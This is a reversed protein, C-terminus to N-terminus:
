EPVDLELIMQRIDNFGHVKNEEDDYHGPEPENQRVVVLDKEPWVILHQGLWGNAAFAHLATRKTDIPSMGSSLRAFHKQESDTLLTGVRMWYESTSSFSLENLPALKIAADFGMKQYMPILKANQKVIVRDEPVWWLLGYWSLDRAAASTSQKVSESTLLQVGAWRGGNKMLTGIKALDEALMSLGANTTAHGSKDHYWSYNTINMPEFFSKKVYEDVEVGSAASIVGSLLMTAENNYDFKVGPTDIMPLARVYALQDKQQELEWAGQNHKLGSRQTLVHRLTVASKPPIAWESFWTSLPQDLSGIKGEDLLRMVAMSVISKTVSMTIIPHPKTSFWRHVIVKNNKIIILAESSSQEARRILADVRARVLGVQEPESQAIDNFGHWKGLDSDIYVVSSKASSVEAPQQINPVLESTTRAAPKPPQTVSSCALLSVMWTSSLVACTVGLTERIAAM